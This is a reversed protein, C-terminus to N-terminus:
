DPDGWVVTMADRDEMDADRDQVLVGGLVRKYEREGRASRRREREVLIRTTQKRRLAELAGSEYEPAYLVDLFQEAILEALEPSVPRNVLVVGGYASLPDCALARRYAEEISGAIAVGCPNAHKVIACAPLAFEDLLLRGASLDNLNNYSLDRDAEDAREVRSLLHRRAGSEAYYAARQHPNEGYALDLEKTLSLILRDPLAEVDTFWGAIAAEYAATAAFAEAALRRRTQQSIRGTERLESLVAEYQDPQSLPAVHAFNKAAGRLLSPGGIDIMEVAD